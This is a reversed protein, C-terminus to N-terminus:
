NWSRNSENTGVGDEFESQPTSHYLEYDALNMTHSTNQDYKNTGDPSALIVPLNGNFCLM